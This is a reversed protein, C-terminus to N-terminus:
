GWGHHQIKGALSELRAGTRKVIQQAAAPHILTAVSAAIMAIAAASRVLARVPRQKAPERRIPPYSGFPSKGTVKGIAYNVFYYWLVTVFLGYAFGHHFRRSSTRVHMKPQFVVPGRASLKQLLDFEDGGQTLDTNYGSWAHKRFATNCGSIYNVKGTYAFIRRNLGFFTVATLRVWWPADVFTIVGTAAVATPDDAFTQWITSLWDQPFVTDADTSVVVQGRAGATGTQRAVCVGRRPECLVRVDFAAAVAATCDTSDNDVVIIEFPGPFDQALLSQLCAGLYREENHAPIVVSIKM